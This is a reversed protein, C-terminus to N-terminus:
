FQALFRADNQYLLRIDDIGHRRMCLREIGLGFAFGTVEDPDYGVARFVNPDVMGAGGMEVWRDGGHWLMDVEVSPETFPFFSPRFRIKVDEGLYSRAFLRLVTKLDAMTVGHDVMLGEIQHFMYSHTADVTDPRYVRGIAIVRVPPPGNEMVRVQVTSTQSRLMTGDALYFNDLPDRAPHVPPINLADFNHRVDEVEPGRAVAFGFRGFIDILEDATQTLPHRHGLTPRTGPLTVDLGSAVAEPSEARAKAAEHAAELAGKVANFRQGYARKASPDLTKLREQASKIRGQKLGLFEVRASEIESASKAGEFASRGAAELADLEALAEAAPDTQSM